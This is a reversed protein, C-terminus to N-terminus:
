RRRPSCRHDRVLRTARLSRVEPSGRFPAHCDGTVGSKEDGLHFSTASGPGTGSCRPSEISSDAGGDTSPRSATCDDYKQRAWRMLYSNIRRLLFYLKSRYFRGFYNMWGGRHPQDLAAIETLDKANHRHIRWRRVRRGMVKLAAPQGRPPLRQVHGRETGARHAPDSRTVWSRSRRTSTPVAGSTTRATSSRPRTRTCSCGSKPWVSGSRPRSQEAQRESVCHVVADDAYREFQVDPFERALFLDFAYHMFLNALVPSVASGQPTGRDRPQLTGDPLQLPAVLWRKVYLLVWAQDTNAEVAKVMLDHPVSDFFKAVDLDIVWDKQRLVATPVARGSALASRGPRYGYSDDHFISEVRPELAMAVVTQAVRDAVTPVGLTRTGGSRSRYRWRRAGPASLVDGVVDSELDQLPQGESRVRVGDLSEGDVGAAGKNAKVKEYAEWM